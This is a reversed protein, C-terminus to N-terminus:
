GKNRVRNFYNVLGQTSSDQEAALPQETLLAPLITNALEKGTEVGWQDFANIQWIASQVFTRHEYLALLAGLAYPTLKELLLVNSPKNGPLAQHPALKGVQEASINKGLMLAQSQGFANALLIAHHEALEHHHTVSAIFDVPIFLKGQHLLQCFSHQADTGTHGFIIQGTNVSLPDGAQTVQKGLSEMHLQQLYAPLLQLTHDYPLVARAHANFFNNYWIDLLGLIVPMNQSLPASHFHQDMAHAGDLFEFFNKTGITLMIPLGIASWLSYRGGVWDWFPFINEVSIGFHEAKKPQATVAIFHKSIDKESGSNQLFWQKATQANTLVEITSFSKSAIIFLTTEPNLQKLTQNIATGDINSVFHIHLNNNSYASLAETVLAPGLHSGGIAFVVVDTIKKNSFGRWTGNHLQETFRVMKEQTARIPPMINEGNVLLSTTTRDRLATHLAPRNESHNVPKGTFLDNIKTDLASINALNNLLFFTEHTVLNKSYDLFLTAAQLSFRNFRDHDQQFLDQMHLTSIEQQHKQLAQWELTNTPPTIM